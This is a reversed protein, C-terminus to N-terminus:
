QVVTTNFLPNPYGNTYTTTMRADNLATTGAVFNTGSGPTGANVAIRVYGIPANGRAPREPLLATGAGTSIVGATITPNGSADLSLMYVREQVSSANAPIDHTTATFAVEATTKSLVTGNVKFVTTSAIKVSTNASSGIVLGPTSLVNNDLATSINDLTTMLPGFGYGSGSQIPGM